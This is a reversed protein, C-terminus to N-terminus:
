AASFPNRAHADFKEAHLREVAIFNAGCSKADQHDQTTAARIGRTSAQIIREVHPMESTRRM